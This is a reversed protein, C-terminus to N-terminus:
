CEKRLRDALRRFRAPHEARYRDRRADGWSSYLAARTASAVAATATPPEPEHGGCGVLAVAGLAATAM